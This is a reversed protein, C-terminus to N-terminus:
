GWNMEDEEAADAISVLGGRAFGGSLGLMARASHRGGRVQRRLGRRPELDLLLRHPSAVTVAMIFAVLLFTM